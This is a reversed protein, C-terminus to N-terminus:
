WATKVTTIGKLKPVKFTVNGSTTTPNRIELRSRYGQRQKNRENRVNQALKETEAEPLGNFTEETSGQM